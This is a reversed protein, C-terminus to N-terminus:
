FLRAREAIRNEEEITQATFADRDITFLSDTRYLRRLLATDAKVKLRRYKIDNAEYVKFSIRTNILIAISITLILFLGISIWLGKHIHHHHITHDPRKENLSKPM